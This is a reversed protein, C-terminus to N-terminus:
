NSVSTNFLPAYSSNQKRRPRRAQSPAWQNGPLAAIDSPWDNMPPPFPLTMETHTVEVFTLLDIVDDWIEATIDVYHGDCIDLQNTQLTVVDRPISPFHKCASDLMLNYSRQRKVLVRKPGHKLVLLQSIQNAESTKGWLLTSVSM